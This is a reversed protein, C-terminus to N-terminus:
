WVASSRAVSSGTDVVVWYDIHPSVCALTERVVHAENRVIMSLCITQGPRRM